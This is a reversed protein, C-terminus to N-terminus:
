SNPVSIIEMSLVLSVYIEGDHDFVVQMIYFLLVNHPFICVAKLMTMILKM